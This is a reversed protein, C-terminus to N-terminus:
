RSDRGDSDLSLGIHPVHDHTGPQGHHHTHDAPGSSQTPPPGDYQIRGDAMVIARYLHEHLPGLEHAVLVVTAGADSLRGLIRAMSDQHALDVGANPEDLFLVDPEGALARAILARQQQGGSLTSIGDQGRDALDVAELAEEIAARDARGLPRWTRRRSLRGSAVVEWVSAPVGSTAGGRQPVFGIRHWDHFEPFPTGFLALQGRSLPRLGILARVLTSKGSGNPGLVTVFEGALVSLDVRRLVPRGGISVAGGNLEVVPGPASLV